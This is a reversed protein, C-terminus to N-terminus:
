EEQLRASQQCFLLNLFDFLGRNTVYDDARSTSIDQFLNIKLFIQKPPLFTVNM